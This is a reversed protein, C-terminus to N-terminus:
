NSLGDLVGHYHNFTNSTALLQNNTDLTQWIIDTRKMRIITSNIQRLLLNTQPFYFYRNRINKCDIIRSTPRLILDTTLFASFNQNLYNFIIPLDEYCNTVNDLVYIKNVSVCTPFFVNGNNAYVIIPNGEIDEIRVFEDVLRSM